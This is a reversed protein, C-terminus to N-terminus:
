CAGAVWSVLWGAPSIKEALAFAALAAIWAINMVGGVFLIAMLAWCCGLCYAGHEGGLRM